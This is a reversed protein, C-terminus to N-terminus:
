IYINRDKQAQESARTVSVRSRRSGERYSEYRNPQRRTGWAEKRGGESRTELEETALPHFKTRTRAPATYRQEGERNVIRYRVEVGTQRGRERERRQHNKVRGHTSLRASICSSRGKLGRGVEIREEEDRGVRIRTDQVGKREGKVRSKNDVRRDQM